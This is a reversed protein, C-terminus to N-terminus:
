KEKAFYKELYENMKEDKISIDCKISILSKALMESCNKNGNLVSSIYTQDCGTYSAYVCTRIERFFNYYEQNLHYM